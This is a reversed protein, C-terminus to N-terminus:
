RMENAIKMIKKLRYNVGSKGIPNKLLKGLTEMSVSPNDIRVLAIEKLNDDLNNLANIKILYNIADVQEISSKIIKDLNANECNIVRNINNKTEKIVRVEEFKLMSKSAGIFALFNSIIEGDKSYLIYKGNRLIIKFDFDYKKLLEKIEEAKLKEKFTIEIHSKKNPDNLFGTTLFIERINLRDIQEQQKLQSTTIWMKLSKLEEKVDLNFSM